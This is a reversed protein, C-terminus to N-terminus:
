KIIKDFFNRFEEDEQYEELIDLYVSINRFTVDAETKFSFHLKDSLFYEFSNIDVVELEEIIFLKAKKELAILRDRYTEEPIKREMIFIDEYEPIKSYIKRLSIIGSYEVSDIKNVLDKRLNDYGKREEGYTNCLNSDILFSGYIDERLYRYEYNYTTDKKLNKFETMIEKKTM